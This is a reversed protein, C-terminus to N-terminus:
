KKLLYWLSSLVAGTSVLVVFVRSGWKPVYYERERGSFRGFRSFRKATLGYIIGGLGYILGLYSGTETPPGFMNLMM